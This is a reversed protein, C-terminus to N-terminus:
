PNTLSFRDYPNRVQAIYLEAFYNYKEEVEEITRHAYDPTINIGEGTLKLSNWISSGGNKPIHIFILNHKALFIAM